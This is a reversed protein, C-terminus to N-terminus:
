RHLPRRRDVTMVAWARDPADAVTRVAVAMSEPDRRVTGTPDSMEQDRPHRNRDPRHRRVREAAARRHRGADRVERRVPQTRVVPRVRRAGAIADQRVFVKLKSWDGLIATGAPVSNSIVRRISSDGFINAM